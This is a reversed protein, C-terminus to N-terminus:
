SVETWMQPGTEWIHVSARSRTFSLKLNKVKFPGFSCFRGTLRVHSLEPLCWFWTQTEREHSVTAAAAETIVHLCTTHFMFSCFRQFSSVRRAGCFRIRRSSNTSWVHELLEDDGDVFPCVPRLRASAVVSVTCSVAVCCCCLLQLSVCCTRLGM